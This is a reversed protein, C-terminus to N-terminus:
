FTSERKTLYPDLQFSIGLFTFFSRKMNIPSNTRWRYFVLNLQLFITTQEGLRFFPLWIRIFYYQDFSILSFQLIGRSLNSNNYDYYKQPTGVGGM